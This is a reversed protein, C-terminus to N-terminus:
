EGVELAAQVLDADDLGQAIGSELGAVLDPDALLGELQLLDGRRFAGAESLEPPISRSRRGSGGTPATNRSPIVHIDRGALSSRCAVEVAPVLVYTMGDGEPACVPWLPRSASCRAPTM